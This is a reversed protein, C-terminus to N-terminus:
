VCVLDRRGGDLCFINKYRFHDSGVPYPGRRCIRGASAADASVAASIRGCLYGASDRSHWIDGAEPHVLADLTEAKVHYVEDAFARILGVIFAVAAVLAYLGRLGTKANFLKKM